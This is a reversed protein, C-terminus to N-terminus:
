KQFMRHSSKADIEQPNKWCGHGKWHGATNVSHCVGGMEFLFEEVCVKALHVILCGINYNKIGKQEM